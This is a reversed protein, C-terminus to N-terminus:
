DFSIHVCCSKSEDRSGSADFIMFLYGYILNFGHKELLGIIATQGDM